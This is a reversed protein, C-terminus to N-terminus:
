KLDHHNSSKADSPNSGTQTSYPQSQVEPEPNSTYVQQAIDTAPNFNAPPRDFPDLSRLQKLESCCAAISRESAAIDKRLGALALAVAEARSPLLEQQIKVAVTQFKDELLYMRICRFRQCEWQSAALCCSVETQAHGGPAPKAIVADLVRSYDVM